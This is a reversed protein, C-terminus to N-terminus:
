KPGLMGDIGHAAQGLFISRSHKDVASGRIGRLRRDVIRSPNAPRGARCQRAPRVAETSPPASTPRSRPGTPTKM